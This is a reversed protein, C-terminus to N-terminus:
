IIWWNAGDNVIQVVEDELDISVTLDSDIEEVGLGDITVTNSTSDIRKFVYHRGKDGVATPLTITFNGATADVLLVQNTPLLTPADSVITHVTFKGSWAITTPPLSAQALKYDLENRAFNLQDFAADLNPKTITAGAEFDVIMAVTPTSRTVAIDALNAPPTALRVVSPTLFTFTVPVGDVTVIIHTSAAYLFGIAFDTEVDDGTYLTPAYEAM